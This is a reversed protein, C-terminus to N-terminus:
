HMNISCRSDAPRTRPTSEVHQLRTETSPPHGTYLLMHHGSGVSSAESCEAGMLVGPPAVPGPHAEAGQEQLGCGVSGSCRGKGGRTKGKREGQRRGGAGKETRLQGTSVKQDGKGRTACRGQRFAGRRGACGSGWLWKGPRRGM